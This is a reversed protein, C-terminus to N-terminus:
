KPLEDAVTELPKVDARVATVQWCFSASATASHVRFRGDVIRGAALSTGFQYRGDGDEMIETIQITRGEKRTLAEFYDPLEILAKGDITRGEGRYFVAAEPGELCAHILRKAALLPHPIAFQKNGSVALDGTITLPGNVLMSGNFNVQNVTTGIRSITLPWGITSFDDSIFRLSFTSTGTTIDTYKQDTPAAANVFAVYPGAADTQIAVNNQTLDSIPTPTGVVKVASAQATGGAILGGTMTVTGNPMLNSIVTNAVRYIFYGNAPVDMYLNPDGPGGGVFGLRNGNTNNGNLTFNSFGSGASALQARGSYGCALSGDANLFTAPGASLNGTAAVNGTTTVSAAAVNGSTDIDGINPHNLFAVTAPDISAGWGTGTSQPVGTPPYVMGGGGDPTNAFTRVPSGEVECTNFTADEASIEGTFTANAAALNGSTDIDGVNPHNLFAVTAPDISAGWGTGTSQPVGTPPYVMGGGGDPTNAFTRVPSGDVECTNFAADDASLDGSVIASAASITGTLTADAASLDGIFAADDASLDGSVDLDVPILVRPNQTAPNIDCRIYTHANGGTYDQMQLNFAPEVAGTVGTVLLDASGSGGTGEPDFALMASGAPVPSTAYATTIIAGTTVDGSVIANAASIDGTLVAGTSDVGILPPYTEEDMTDFVLTGTPIAAEGFPAVITAGYAFTVSILMLWYESEDAESVAYITASGDAEEYRQIGIKQWRPGTRTYESAPVRNEFFCDLVSPPNQMEYGAVRVEILDTTAVTPVPLTAIKWHDSINSPGLNFNLTTGNITGGQTFNAATYNTGNWVYNQLAANRRDALYVNTSGNVISSIAETGAYGAEIVVAFNGGDNVAFDVAAQITRLGAEGAYLIQNIRSERIPGTVTASAM